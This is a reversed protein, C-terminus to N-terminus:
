RQVMRYIWLTLYWAGVGILGLVIYERLQFLLLFIWAVYSM